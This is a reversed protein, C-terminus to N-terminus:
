LKPIIVDWELGADIYKESLPLMRKSSYLFFITTDQAYIYPLHVPIVQWSKAYLMSPPQGPLHM